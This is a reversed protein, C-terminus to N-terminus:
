VYIKFEESSIEFEMTIFPQNKPKEFSFKDETIERNSNFDTLAELVTTKGSENKGTLITIPSSLSCYDIDIISKYNQIRFKILKMKNKAKKFDFFGIM